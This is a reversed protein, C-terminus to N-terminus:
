AHKARLPYEVTLAESPRVLDLKSGRARHHSGSGTRKLVRDLRLTSLPKTIQRYVPYEEREFDIYM